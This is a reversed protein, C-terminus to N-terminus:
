WSRARSSAAYTVNTAHNVAALKVGPVAAGCADTVLGTISAAGTQAQAVGPLIAAVLCCLLEKAADPGIAM